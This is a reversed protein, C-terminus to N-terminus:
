WPPAGNVKQIYARMVEDFGQALQDCAKRWGRVREVRLSASGLVAPDFDQHAIANRWENLEALRDQRGQSRPDLGLVEPWFKLGFRNFDAGLNGPNPNGRDLKRNQVLAESLASRLLGAPMSQLLFGVCESHLDRCYGQFQSSLIVAYAHNIQQTAYRRGRATGGVSRHAAELEDLAARRVTRWNNLSASPM